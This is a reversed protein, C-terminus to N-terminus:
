PAGRNGIGSTRGRIVFWHVSGLLIVVLMKLADNGGMRTALLLSLAVGIAALFVGGRVHFLAPEVGPTSIGRQDRSRFVPLSACVGGYLL